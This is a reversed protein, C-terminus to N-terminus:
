ETPKEWLFYNEETKTRRCNNHSFPKMNLKIWGNGDLECVVITKWAKRSIADDIYEKLRAHDFKPISRSYDNKFKPDDYPPDLFLYGDPDEHRRTFTLFDESTFNLGDMQGDLKQKKLVERKHPWRMVPPWSEMKKRSGARTKGLNYYCPPLRLLGNNFNTRGYRIRLSILWCLGVPLGYRDIWNDNTELPTEFDPASDLVRFFEDKPSLLLKWVEALQPSLDNLFVEGKYNHRRRESLSFGAGGCFPEVIKSHGDARPYYEARNWKSGFYSFFM